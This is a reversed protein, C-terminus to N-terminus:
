GSGSKMRLTSLIADERNASCVGSCNASVAFCIVSHRAEVSEGFVFVRIAASSFSWSMRSKGPADRQWERQDPASRRAGGKINHRGARRASLTRGPARAARARGLRPGRVAGSLHDRRDRHPSAQRTNAWCEAAIARRLYTRPVHDIRKKEELFPAGGGGGSTHRSSQVSLPHKTRPALPM